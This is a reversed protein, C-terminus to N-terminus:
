RMKRPYEDEDSFVFLEPLQSSQHLFQLGEHFTEGSMLVLSKIPAPHRRAVEVCNDVGMLGAGGLGITNVDVGPQSSLFQLAVEVDEPWGRWHKSLEDNSLKEWRTGGSQGIGRMDLTLSHIGAAALQVAVSNWSKRDRNVQHVLLVGPGPKGASFYTARLTTGDAARLDVMRPIPTNQAFGVRGIAVAVFLVFAIISLNTKM